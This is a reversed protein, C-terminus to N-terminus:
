NGRDTIRANVIKYARELEMATLILVPITRADRLRASSASCAAHGNMREENEMMQRKAQGM